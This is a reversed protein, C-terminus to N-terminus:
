QEETCIVLPMQKDKVINQMVKDVRNFFEEKMLDKQKSMSLDNESTLYLETNEIPFPDDIERVLQNNYAEILRAKDRSIVLIFYSKQLHLARVLDRTAFSEAIVVRDEVEVPLRVLEAIHRNVFLLLSDQNQSHDVSEALMRM